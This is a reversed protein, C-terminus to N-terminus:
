TREIWEINTQRFQRLMLYYSFSSRVFQWFLTGFQCDIMQRRCVWQLAFLSHSVKAFLEMNVNFLASGKFAFPKQTREIMFRMMKQQEVPWKSWNSNYIIHGFRLSQATFKEATRYTVFNALSQTCFSMLSFFTAPTVHQISQEITLMVFATFLVFNIAQAFLSPSMIGCIVEFLRCHFTECTFKNPRNLEAAFILATCKIVSSGIEYESLWNRM